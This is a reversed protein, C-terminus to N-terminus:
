RKGRSVTLSVRGNRKLHSGPKPRQSIV